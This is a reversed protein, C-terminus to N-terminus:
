FLYFIFCFLLFSILLYTLLVVNANAGTHTRIELQFCFLFSGASNNNHATNYGGSLNSDQTPALVSYPKLRQVPSVWAKMGGPYYMPYWLQQVYLSYSPRANGHLNILPQLRISHEAVTETTDAPIHWLFMTLEIAHSLNVRDYPM